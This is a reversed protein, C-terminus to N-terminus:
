MGLALKVDRHPNERLNTLHRKRLLVRQGLYKGRDITELPSAFAIWETLADYKIFYITGDPPPKLWRLVKGAFVYADGHVFPKDPEAHTACYTASAAQYALRDENPALGPVGDSHAQGRTIVEPESPLPALLTIRDFDGVRSVPAPSFTLDGPSIWGM